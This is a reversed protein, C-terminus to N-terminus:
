FILQKRAERRDWSIRVMKTVQNSVNQCRRDREKEKTKGKEKSPSAKPSDALVEEFSTTPNQERYKKRKTGPAEVELLYQVLLMQELPATSPATCKNGYLINGDLDASRQSKLPGVAGRAGGTVGGDVAVCCGM